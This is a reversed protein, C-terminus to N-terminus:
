RRYAWDFLLWNIVWSIAVFLGCIGLFVVLPVNNIATLITQNQFMKKQLLLGFNILIGLYPMVIGIRELIRVFTTKPTYKEANQLFGVTFPILVSFGFHSVCYMIFLVPVRQVDKGLFYFHMWFILVLVLPITNFIEFLNSLRVTYIRKTAPLTKAFRPLRKNLLLSIFYLSTIAMWLNALGLNFVNTGKTINIVSTINQILVNFFTAFIAFIFVKQHSILSFLINWEIKSKNM